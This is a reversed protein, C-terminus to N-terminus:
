CQKHVARYLQLLFKADLPVLILIFVLVYLTGLAFFSSWSNDLYPSVSYTGAAAALAAVLGSPRVWHRLPIKLLKMGVAIHLLAAVLALVFRIRVFCLLGHRVSLMYGVLYLTLTALMVGTEGHPKGTARYAEGNAGVVWSFGHMLALWAIVHGLGQWQPGFFLAEMRWALTWVLFGLPVASIWLFHIVSQFTQRFWLVDANGASLLSYLVPLLADFFCGFLLTLVLSGVRFLGMEHPGLYRGVVIADLTGYLWVLLSTVMVWRSFRWLTRARSWDIRFSPRWRSAWWLSVSGAAQSALLGAILAWHRGGAIALPVSVAAPAVSTVLRVVFLDRFRFDRQLLAAHVSGVATLPVQLALLRTAATVRPDRFFWGVLDASASIAAAVAVSALLNLWFATTAAEHIEERAQILTKALGAEWFIHSFSIIVTAAAVVGFDTPTLFRALLLLVLPGALRSVAEALFSWTLSSLFARTSFLAV